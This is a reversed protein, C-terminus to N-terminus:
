RKVGYRPIGQKYRMFSVAAVTVGIREAADKDPMTGLLAIEEPTWFHRPRPTRRM